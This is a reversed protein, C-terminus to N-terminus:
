FHYSVNVSAEAREDNSVRGKGYGLSCQIRMGPKNLGNFNYSYSFGLGDTSERDIISVFICGIFSGSNSENECQEIDPQSGISGLFAGM